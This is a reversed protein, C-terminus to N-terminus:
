RTTNSYCTGGTADECILPYQASSDYNSCESRAPVSAYDCSAPRWQNPMNGLGSDM